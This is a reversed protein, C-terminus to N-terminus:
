PITEDYEQTNIVIPGHLDYNGSAAIQSFVDVRGVSQAWEDRTAPDFAQALDDRRMKLFAQLWDKEDVGQAPAGGAAAAARQLLAPLGDPDSGDGHQIIADYLAARALATQLGLEDAHKMAPQYYLEDVVDDQVSRFASDQAAQAWAGEFGGLGSVDASGAEALRKLEPLYAALPNDQVRETYLQVVLYADGTATTFGARGATIGRGDGLSNAFDYQLQQTSNEFLSTLAEARRKQDPTLWISPTPSSTFTPAPTASSPPTPTPTNSPLPTATPSPAAPTFTPPNTGDAPITVAPQTGAAPFVALPQGTRSTAIEPLASTCATLSLILVILLIIKSLKGTLM